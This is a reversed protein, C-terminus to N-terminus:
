SAEEILVFSVCGRHWCLQWFVFSRADPEEPEPHIDIPQTKGFWDGPNTLDFSVGSTQKPHSGGGTGEISDPPGYLIEPENAYHLFGYFHCASM